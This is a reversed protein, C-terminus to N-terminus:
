DMLVTFPWARGKLFGKVTSSSRADDTCVTIFNFDAQENWEAFYDAINDLEEVCPKCWTAWFIMVIPKNNNLTALNFYKGDSGKLQLDPLGEQSILPQAILSLPLILSIIRWYRLLINM